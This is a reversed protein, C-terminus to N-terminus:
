SQSGQAWLEIVEVAMTSPAVGRHKVEFAETYHPLYHDLPPIPRIPYTNVIM